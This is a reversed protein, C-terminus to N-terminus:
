NCSLPVQKPERPECPQREAAAAGGDSTSDWPKKGLLSSTFEDVAPTQPPPLPSPLTMSRVGNLFSPGASLLIPLSIYGGSAGLAQQISAVLLSDSASTVVAQSPPPPAACPEVPWQAACTAAIGTPLSTSPAEVPLSPDSADRDGQTSGELGAEGVISREAEQQQQFLARELHLRHLHQLIPGGKIRPAPPGDKNEGGPPSCSSTSRRTVPQQQEPQGQDFSGSASQSREQVCWITPSHILIPMIMNTM